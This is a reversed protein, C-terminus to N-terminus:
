SIWEGHEGAHAHTLGCYHYTPDDRNGDSVEANCVPFRIIPSSYSGSIASYIHSESHIATDERWGTIVYHATMGTADSVADAAAHTWALAQELSGTAFDLRGAADHSVTYVTTSM